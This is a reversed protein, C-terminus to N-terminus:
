RESVTTDFPSIVLQTPNKMSVQAVGKMPQKEGYAEVMVHDLMTPSASGGRLKSLEREAYEIHKGLEKKLVTSNAIDVDGAGDATAPAAEAAAGKKAPKAACAAASAHMARVLHASVVARCPLVVVAARARVATHLASRRMLSICAASM